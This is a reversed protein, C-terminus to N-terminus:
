NRFDKYIGSAPLMIDEYIKGLAKLRKATFTFVHKFKLFISARSSKFIVFLFM